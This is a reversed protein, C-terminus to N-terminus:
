TRTSTASSSTSAPPLPPSRTSSRRRARHGARGQVARRRAHRGRLDRHQAPRGRGPERVRDDLGHRGPAHDHRHRVRHEPGRGHSAGDSRGAAVARRREARGAITGIMTPHVVCNFPVRGAELAPVEYTTQGSGTVLAGAFLPTGAFDPNDFIQSTTSPARRGPQRVRDHVARGGAGHPEDAPVRPERRRADAGARGKAGARGRGRDGVIALAIGGALMAVGAVAGVMAPRPEVAARAAPRRGGGGRGRDRAGGVLATVTAADHSVVAPDALVRVAGGRHM